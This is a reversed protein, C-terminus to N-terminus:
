SAGFSGAARGDHPFCPKKTGGGRRLSPKRGPLPPPAWGRGDGEAPTCAKPGDMTAQAYPHAHRRWRRRSCVRAWLVREDQPAAAGLHAFLLVWRALGRRHLVHLAVPAPHGQHAVGGSISQLEPSPGPSARSLCSSRAARVVYNPFPPCNPHHYQM